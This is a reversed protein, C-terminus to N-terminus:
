QIVIIKDYINLSHLIYIIKYMRRLAKRLALAIPTVIVGAFIAEPIGHTVSLVLITGIVQDSSLHIAQAFMDAYIVYILGMVM